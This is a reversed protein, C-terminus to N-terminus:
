DTKPPEIISTKLETVTVVEPLEGGNRWVERVWAQFTQHHVTKKAEVDVDPHEERLQQVLMDAQEAHGRDFKSIVATKVIGGHGNEQLWAHFQAEDAKHVYGVVTQNVTVKHGSHLRFETMMAEAMADPLERQSVQALDEKAKKLNQEAREIWAEIAFQKRSLDIVRAIKAPDVEVGLGADCGYDFDPM